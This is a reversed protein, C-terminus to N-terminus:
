PEAIGYSEVLQMDARIIEPAAVYREGNHASFAKFTPLEVLVDADAARTNIFFHLFNDGDRLLAYAMGKQKKRRLEDFVARSLKENEAAAGPKTTYRVLTVRQM